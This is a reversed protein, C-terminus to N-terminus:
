YQFLIKGACLFAIPWENQLDKWQNKMFKCERKKWIFESAKQVVKKAGLRGAALLVKIANYMLLGDEMVDILIDELTLDETVFFVTSM